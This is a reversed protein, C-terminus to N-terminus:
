SGLGFTCESNLDGYCVRRLEAVTVIDEVTQV